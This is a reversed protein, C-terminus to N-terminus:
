ADMLGEEVCDDNMSEESYSQEKAMGMSEIPEFANRGDPAVSILQGSMMNEARRKSPALDIKKKFEATAKIRNANDGDDGWAWSYHTGYSTEFRLTVEEGVEDQDTSTYLSIKIIDPGLVEKIIGIYNNNISFSNGEQRVNFMPKPSITVTDMVMESEDNSIDYIKHFGEIKKVNFVDSFEQPPEEHMNVEEIISKVIDVTILQLNSLFEICDKRYEKYELLDDVIEEVVGTELDEFTKMYRLRGPRQKLNDEIYLNNTTLLFVRRFKSNLAGDMITLMDNSQEFIKEYEDVFIVIDQPISNLFMHVGEYRKNVVIVPKCLKNCIQKATVTKGTGKLGNLLVGLNGEQKSYTKIVRNILKTQLNYIKYDFSYNKAIPTLFFRGYADVGVTHIVNELQGRENSPHQLYLADEQQSWVQNNM